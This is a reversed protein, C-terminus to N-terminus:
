VSYSFKRLWSEVARTTQPTAPQNRALRLQGIVWSGAPEKVISLTARQPQLVRYIYGAGAEVWKAYTFVCNQQQQGEEFLQEATTLPQIDETGPLPPPPFRHAAVEARDQRACYALSTEQHVERLRAVTQFVRPPKGPDLKRQMWQLDRVLAATGARELEEEMGAVEALLRPSTAALTWPDSLLTIAGTNIRELHSLLKGAEENRLIMHLSKMTQLQAAQPLLKALIRACADKGPFELWDLIQRQKLKLLDAVPTTEYPRFSDGHALCFALAPNQSFLDAAQPHDKLMRLLRWQRSPFVEVIRAVEPPVTYRFAQFALHREAEPDVAGTRL